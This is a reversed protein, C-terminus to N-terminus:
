QQLMLYQDYEGEQLAATHIDNWDLLFDVDEIYIDAKTM